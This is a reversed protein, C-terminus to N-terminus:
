EKQQNAINPISLAIESNPETQSDFDMLNARVLGKYNSVLNFQKDWKM